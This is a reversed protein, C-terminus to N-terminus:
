DVLQILHVFSFVRNYTNINLYNLVRLNFLQKCEFLEVGTSEVSRCFMDGLGQGWSRM